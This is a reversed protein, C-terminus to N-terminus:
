STWGPKSKQFIPCLTVTQNLNNTEFEPYFPNCVYPIELPPLSPKKLFTNNPNQKRNKPPLTYAEPRTKVRGTGAEQPACSIWQLFKINVSAPAAQPDIIVRVM